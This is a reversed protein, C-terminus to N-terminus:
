KSPGLVETTETLTAKGASYTIIYVRDFDSGKWSPPQPSVGLAAALAPLWEHNWCVVVTKGAYANKSLIAAALQLYDKGIVPTQVPLKLKKAFPAITEQTRVGDGNKTMATAFVAVPMGFKTVVPDTTLFAVLNAARRVGAPALHPNAEDSPKEAHRILIIQAPRSPAQIPSFLALLTAFLLM